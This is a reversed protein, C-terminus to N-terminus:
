FAVSIVQAAHDSVAISKSKAWVKRMVDARERIATSVYLSTTGLSAHGLNQQVIEVPVGDRVAHTAHTHRLWHTSACRLKYAADGRGNEELWAACGAFLRRLRRYLASASLARPQSVGTGAALPRVCFAGVSWLRRLGEPVTQGTLREVAEAVLEDPVPVVRERAGKGMARLMWSAGPESADGDVPEIDAFRAAVAEHLRLGTAYLFRLEWRYQAAAPDRGMPGALYDLLAQWQMKTLSREVHLRPKSGRPLAVGTWPNGVLYEQDQLFRYMVRLVTMAQRRASASLPGEFPRWAPSDCPTCRPACWQARPQPDALFDRYDLCDDLTAEALTKCRTVQLWQLYRKAERLYSRQTHNLALTGDTRATM